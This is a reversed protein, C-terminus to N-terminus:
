QPRQRRSRRLSRGSESIALADSHPLSLAQLVPDAKKPSCGLRRAVKELPEGAANMRAIAEAVDARVARPGFVPFGMATLMEPQVLHRDRPQVTRAWAFSVDSPRPLPIVVGRPLAASCLAARVKIAAPKILRHVFCVRQGVTIGARGMAAHDRPTLARFQDAGAGVLATGLGKQLQYVVGRGAASLTERDLTDLPRLLASTTDAMWAMLRKKLQLKPGGSADVTIVVEPQTLSSGKQLQAVARAGAQIVGDGQLSFTEHAEDALREAWDDAISQEDQAAVVLTRLDALSKVAGSSLANSTRGNRHRAFRRREDVFRGVLQEHLADSLHDEIQRSQEQFSRANELWRSRNTIFTWTRIAAMRSLLTDIGGNLDDIRKIRSQVWQPDLTAKPRSSLQVFITKLLDTHDGFDIKRFDPVQCVDWLREVDNPNRIHARVDQEKLLQALIRADHADEMLRLAKSRPKIHLSALLADASSFDLASNRWWIERQFPFQHDELSRVVTPELAPAPNLTAFRGDRRHRGARGAIQALETTQLPRPKRGDFKRLDAFAVCDVDLNLGMGIADTAVLYDVEGSQYMAVQANRTRPSLAGLVVAAGGRKVRLREALEYVRPLSFAVVATRPPLQAVSLGGASKLASFRPRKEIVAAPALREVLPIMTSAGLFWTEQEGRWNLLRDTFVHGRERHGALQIEDIALFDVTKNHPRRPMAEVTCVWYRAHRPIRKEEGTVLAVADQGVRASVRDYVERALLRLPLGIMGTAHELMREIAAHSKGTNTPGLLARVAGAKADAAM